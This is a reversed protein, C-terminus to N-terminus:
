VIGKKVLLHEYADRDMPCEILDMFEATNLRCQKAMQGIRARDLSKEKPSHSTKTMCPSKKGDRAHYVFYRHDKSSLKFGKSLLGNEVTKKDTAV